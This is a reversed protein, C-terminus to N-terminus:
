NQEYPPEYNSLTQRQLKKVRWFGERTGIAFIIGSFFWFPFSSYESLWIGHYFAGAFHLFIVGYYGLSISQWFSSRIKKFFTRNMKFAQFIIFFYLMLGIIGTEYFSSVIQSVHFVRETSSGSLESFYSEKTSGFGKGILLTGIGQSLLQKTNYLLSFIRGPNNDEIGEGSMSTWLSSKTLDFYSSNFFTEVKWLINKNFSM